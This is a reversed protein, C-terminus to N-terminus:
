PEAFLVDFVIAAAGAQQLRTVLEAVRTRPWPWQGIRALSQEDLDVIRVPVERYVRPQWRQYQDFLANRLAQLSLPQSLQLALVAAIALLPLWLLARSPQFSPM